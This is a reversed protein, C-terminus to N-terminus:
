RYLQSTDVFILYESIKSQKFRFINCFPVSLSTGDHKTYTVIGHCVIGDEISWSHILDHNLSQISNFFGGVIDGISESGQVQPQNGFRFLCDDSLCSKFAALDKRDIAPFLETIM